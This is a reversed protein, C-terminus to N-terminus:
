GLLEATASSGRPANDSATSTKDVAAFSHSFDSEYFSALDSLTMPFPM